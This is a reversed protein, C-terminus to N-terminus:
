SFVAPFEDASDGFRDIDVGLARLLSLHLSNLRAKDSSAKMHSGHKLGMNKGGALLLPLNRTDHTASCGSGYMVITDDLVSGDKDQVNNLRDVFYAILNGQFQDYRAWNEYGGGDNPRNYGHSLAHHALIDMTVTPFTDAIGMGDERSMMFTATRTVDTEFALAILDFMTRYYEEPAKRPDVDLDVHDANVKKLPIDIWRDYLDVQDEIQSVAAMYEDLKQQDNRGLRRHLSRANELIRDIMKGQERLSNRRAEKSGTTSAFLREFILRPKNETPIPNGRQDFSITGIRSKFGVGGDCSFALYPQRTKGRFERAVIQDISISNNYKNGSIDGCTLWIDSCSHAPGGTPHDLGSIVSVKDRLPEFAQLPKTFKFNMGTEHPFWNWDQHATTGEPPLSVGNASYIFCSRKVPDPNAVVDKAMCELYPLSLSIGVGKLFTRRNLHWSKEAM